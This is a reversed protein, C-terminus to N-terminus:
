STWALQPWPSPRRAQGPLTIIQTSLGSSSYKPPAGLSRCRQTHTHADVHPTPPPSIDPDRAPGQASEGVARHITSINRAIAGPEVITDRWVQRLLEDQRVLREADQVLFVLVEYVKPELKVLKGDRRLECRATDLVCDEFAYRM